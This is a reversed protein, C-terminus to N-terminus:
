KIFVNFFLSEDYELRGISKALTWHNQNVLWNFKSTNNGIKVGPILVSLYGLLSNNTIFIDFWLVGNKVMKNNIREARRERFRKIVLKGITRKQETLM